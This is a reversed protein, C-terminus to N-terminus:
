VNVHKGSLIANVSFLASGADDTMVRIYRKGGVYGILKVSDEDADVIDFKTVSAFDGATTTDSHQLDIETGETTIDGIAISLACKDYGRLDVTNGTTATTAIAQPEIVPKVEINSVLDRM